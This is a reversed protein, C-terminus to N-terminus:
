AVDNVMGSSKISDLLSSHSDPSEESEPVLTINRPFKDSDELTSAFNGQRKIACLLLEPATVREGSKVGGFIASCSNSTGRTSCVKSQNQIADLL